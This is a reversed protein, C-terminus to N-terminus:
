GSNPIRSLGIIALTAIDKLLTDTIAFESRSRCLMRRWAYNKPSIGHEECFPPGTPFRIPPDAHPRKFLAEDFGNTMIAM